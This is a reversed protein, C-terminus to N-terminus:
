DKPSAVRKQKLNLNHNPPDFPLDGEKAICMTEFRLEEDWLMIKRILEKDIKMQSLFISLILAKLVNISDNLQHYELIGSADEKFHSYYNRTRSLEKFYMKTLEEDSKDNIKGQKM